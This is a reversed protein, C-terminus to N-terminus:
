SAIDLLNGYNLLGVSKRQLLLPLPVPFCAFDVRQYLRVSLDSSSPIFDIRLIDDLGALTYLSERFLPTFPAVARADGHVLCDRSACRSVMTSSAALASRRRCNATRGGRFCRVGEYGRAHRLARVEGGPDAQRIEGLMREQVAVYSEVADSILFNSSRRSDKALKALRTKTEPNLRISL